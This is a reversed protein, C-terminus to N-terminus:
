KKLPSYIEILNGDPDRLHVVRIGWAERNQPGALFQLSRECLRAYTADVDDVSLV